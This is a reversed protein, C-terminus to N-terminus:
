RDMTILLLLAAPPARCLKSVSGGRHVAIAVRYGRSGESTNRRGHLPDDQPNSRQSNSPKEAEENWPPDDQSNGDRGVDGDRKERKGLTDAFAAVVEGFIGQTQEEGDPHNRHEDCGRAADEGPLPSTPLRPHRTPLCALRKGADRAGTVAPRGGAVPPSRSRPRRRSRRRARAPRCRRPDLPGVDLLGRPAWYARARESRASSSGPAASLQSMVVDFSGDEFPLREAAALRVDAGPVAARAAEVFPESPDIGAVREPGLRRAVEGLLVGRGCGIDHATEGPRPNAAHTEGDRGHGGSSARVM